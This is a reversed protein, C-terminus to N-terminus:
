KGINRHKNAESFKVCQENMKILEMQRYNFDTSWINCAERARNMGLLMSNIIQSCDLPRIIPKDINFMASSFVSLIFLNFIFYTFLRKM